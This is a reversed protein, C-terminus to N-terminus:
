YLDTCVERVFFYIMGTSIDGGIITLGNTNADGQNEDVTYVGAALDFAVRDNLIALLEADTNVNAPTTALCQYIIGPLCLQVYVVGDASATQTSTTSAIGLMTETTTPEADALPIVYNRGTGGIQVPEGANIATGAAETRFLQAPPLNNGGPSYISVNGLAM